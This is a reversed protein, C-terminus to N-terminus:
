SPQQPACEDKRRKKGPTNYSNVIARTRSLLLQEDHASSRRDLESPVDCNKIRDDEDRCQNKGETLAYRQQGLVNGMPKALGATGPTRTSDRRTLSGLATRVKTEQGVSDETLSENKRRVLLDPGSSKTLRMLVSGSRECVAAVASASAQRFHFTSSGAEIM